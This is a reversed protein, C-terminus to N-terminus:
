TWPGACHTVMHNRAKRLASPCDLAISFLMKGNCGSVSGGMLRFPLGQTNLFASADIPPSADYLSGDTEASTKWVNVPDDETAIVIQRGDLDIASSLSMTQLHLLAATPRKRQWMTHDNSGSLIRPGDSSFAVTGVGLTRGTLPLCMAEKTEMDWLRPTGERSRSM